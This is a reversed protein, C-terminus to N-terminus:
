TGNSLSAQQYVLRGLDSKPAYETSVMEVVTGEDAWDYLLKANDNQSMVCGFTYPAGVSGGGLYTGNPLLVAGHFGNMLGPGVEYMGMFWYMEWQGCDGGVNCLTFSSGLAVEEHSLVQYIGPSTPYQSLGSSILWNFVPQGNEFATMTQNDLNVVIRKNPIPELPMTVDRSPIRIVDGPSLVGLDRGPNAEEILYFPIGTKRAIRYGTDGREVEYETPRYQIRLLVTSDKENIADTIRQRTLSPDLYREGLTSDGNLSQNQADMFTAFTDDRLKLQNDGAELWSTFVDRNTSWTVLQDAFPDYGTLTFSQSTIATADTLFPEPDPFEPPLAAMELDLRGMEVVTVPDTLLKEMTHPVDLMRGDTGPVGVLQDSEWTFTGNRPPVDTSATLDLLYTQATTYDVSVVPPIGYGMPVGSLGINRAAEATKLGDIDLGLELPPVNWERNGDALRIHVQNEWATELAAAAEDVTLDGIYVGAAWVNPFIRGTFIHSALFILFLVGLIGAGALWVKPSHTAYWLLDRALLGVRGRWDGDGGPLTLRKRLVEGSQGALTAMASRRGQRAMQRDRARNNRRSNSSEYGSM